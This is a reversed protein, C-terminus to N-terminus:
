CQCSDGDKWHIRVHDNFTKLTINLPSANNHIVLAEFMKRKLMRYANAKM